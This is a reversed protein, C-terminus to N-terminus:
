ESNIYIGNVSGLSSVSVEKSNENLEYIILSMIDKLTILLSISLLFMLDEPSWRESVCARHNHQATAM